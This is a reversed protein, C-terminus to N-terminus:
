GWRGWGRRGCGRRRGRGAGEGGEELGGAVVDGAFVVDVVGAGLHFEEVGGDVGAVHLGVTLVGFEGGAAVLAFVDDVEGPFDAVFLTGDEGDHSGFASGFGEAADGAVFHDGM